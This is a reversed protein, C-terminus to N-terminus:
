QISRLKLEKLGSMYADYASKTTEEEGAYYTGDRYTFLDKSTLGKAPDFSFARLSFGGTAEDQIEFVVSHEKASYYAPTEVSVAATRSYSGDAHYWIQLLEIGRNVEKYVLVLEEDGNQDLDILAYGAYETFTPNKYSRFYRSAILDGYPSTPTTWTKVTAAKSWTVKGAANKYYAKVTYRIQVGDVAQWKTDTITTKRTTAVKVWKQDTPTKRYIRYGTAGSVKTITIKPNGNNDSITFVPKTLAAYAEIGTLVFIAAALTLVFLLARKKM